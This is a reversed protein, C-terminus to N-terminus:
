YRNQEQLASLFAQLDDGLLRRMQRAQEKVANHIREARRSDNDYGFEACFEDFDYDASDYDVLLSWMLSGPTIADSKLRLIYCFKPYHQVTKEEFHGTGMWYDFAYERGKYHIKLRMGVAQRKHWEDVDEPPLQVDGIINEPYKVNFGYGAKQAKVLLKEPPLPFTITVQECLEDFRSKEESDTAM